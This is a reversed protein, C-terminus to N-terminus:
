ADLESTFWLDELTCDVFHVEAVSCRDRSSPFSDRELIYVSVLFPNFRTGRAADMWWCITRGTVRERESPVEYFVNKLVIFFTSSLKGM